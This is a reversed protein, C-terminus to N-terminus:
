EIGFDMRIDQNYIRITQVMADKQVKAITKIDDMYM